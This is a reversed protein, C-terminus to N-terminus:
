EAPPHNSKRWAMAKQPSHAEAIKRWHEREDAQYDSEDILENPDSPLQREPTRSDTNNWAIMMGYWVRRVKGADLM